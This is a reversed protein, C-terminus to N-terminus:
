SFCTGPLIVLAPLTSKLRADNSTTKEQGSSIRASTGEYLRLGGRFASLQTVYGKRHFGIFDILFLDHRVSGERLITTSVENGSQIHHFEVLWSDSTVAELTFFLYIFSITKVKPHAGEFRREIKDGIYKCDVEKSKDRIRRELTKAGREFSERWL